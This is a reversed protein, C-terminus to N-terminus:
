RQTGARRRFPPMPARSSETEDETIRLFIATNERIGLEIARIAVKKADIMGQEETDKVNDASYIPAVQCGKKHLFDIEEKTLCDEGTINRGWFNPYLKNRTVWEFETLNNQLIDDSKISSEVGFFLKGDIYSKETKTVAKTTKTDDKVVNATNIKYADRCAM